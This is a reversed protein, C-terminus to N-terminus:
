PSLNARVGFRSRRAAWPTRNWLANTVVALQLSHRYASALQRAEGSTGGRWVPGVAHIVHRVPLDGAASIVADGTPCGNPYRARTEMMVSPGAARHIAGDVGGGGALQSNAANVIADVHQETIDGELLEFRVIGLQFHTTSPM